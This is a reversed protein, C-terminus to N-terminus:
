VVTNLDHQNVRTAGCQRLIKMVHKDCEPETRVIVFKGKHHFATAYAEIVDDPLHCDALHFKFARVITPLDSEVGGTGCIPLNQLEIFAANSIEV